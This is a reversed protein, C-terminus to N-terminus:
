TSFFFVQTLRGDDNNTGFYDLSTHWQDSRFLILRNYVNGVEAVKEWYNMDQFIDVGNREPLIGDESTLSGDIKSRFFGTGGSVPANPTLYLVGAWNTGDDVHVWSSNLKTTLQFAGTYNGEGYEAWERVPEGIIREIDEKTSDNIFNETRGGPYNGVVEFPLSLAFSRVEDPNNYFDDIVVLSNRM